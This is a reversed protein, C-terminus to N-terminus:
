LYKVMIILDLYRGFHFRGKKIVGVKQFGLKKYLKISKKNEAYVNLQLIKLKLAKKAAKFAEKLLEEALGRGRSEKELFVGTEGVHCNNAFLGAYVSAGGVVRGAKEAVLYVAKGNLVKHLIHRILKVEDARGIKRQPGMMSKEEVLSNVVAQLDDADAYKLGRIFFEQRNKKIKKVLEGEKM